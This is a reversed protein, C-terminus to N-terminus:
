RYTYTYQALGDGASFDNESRVVVLVEVGNNRKKASNDSKLCNILRNKLTAVEILLTCGGLKNTIINAFNLAKVIFYFLYIVRIGYM